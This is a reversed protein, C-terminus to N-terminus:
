GGPTWLQGGTEPAWGNVLTSVQRLVQYRAGLGPKLLLLETELLSGDDITQRLLISANAKDVIWGRNQAIGFALDLYDEAGGSKNLLLFLEEDLNAVETAAAGKAAALASAGQLGRNQIRANSAATSLSLMALTAFCLVTFIMLLSTTGTGVGSRHKQRPKPMKASVPQNM